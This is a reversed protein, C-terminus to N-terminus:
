STTAALTQAQAPNDGFGHSLGWLVALSRSDVEIRRYCSRIYSKVTNVSLNLTGAIDANSLGSCILSLVEAERDTLVEGREAQNAARARTFGAKPAVIGRETNVSKLAKLLEASTLSKALYASAGRGILDAAAWPQFNWTFVAVKRIRPDALLQALTARGDTGSGAHDYLAIDIPQTLSRTLRVLEIQEPHDRLMASVGRTTLEDDDILTVRLPMPVAYLVKHVLCHKSERGWPAWGSTAADPDDLDGADARSRM